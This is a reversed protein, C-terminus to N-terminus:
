DIEYDWISQIAASALDTHAAIDLLLSAQNTTPSTWEQKSSGHETHIETMGDKVRVEIKWASSGVVDEEDDNEDDNANTNANSAANVNGNVNASTPQDDDIEEDEKAEFKVITGLQAQSLGTRKAIEALIAARDTTELRFSTTHGSVHLKVTAFTTGLKVEAEALGHFDPKLLDDHHEQTNTLKEEVDKLANVANGSTGKAELKTRAEHVADAARELAHDTEQEAEQLVGSAHENNQGELEQLEKQREAAINASVRAKAEQGVSVGLQVRELAKDLGFLSDGPKANNAAIATGTGFALVIAVIIAAIMPHQTVFYFSQRHTYREPPLPTVAASTLLSRLIRDKAARDMGTAAGSRLARIIRQDENSPHFVSM